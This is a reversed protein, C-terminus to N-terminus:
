LFSFFLPVFDLLLETGRMLGPEAMRKLYGQADEFQGCSCPKGTVNVWGQDRCEAVQFFTLISVKSVNIQRAGNLYFDLAAGHRGTDDLSTELYPMKGLVPFSEGIQFSASIICSCGTDDLAPFSGREPFRQLSLMLEAFFYKMEQRWSSDSSPHRQQNTQVSLAWRWIRAFFICSALM